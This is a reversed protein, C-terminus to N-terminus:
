AASDVVVLESCRHPERLFRRASSLEDAGVINTLYSYTGPRTLYDGLALKTFIPGLVFASLIIEVALAPIIRLGRNILFNDLSLRQASGTILFGSLAFFMVLISYGFIWAGPTGDLWVAERAVGFSHWTVVSAALVVRLLDFGPAIGSYKDLKAGITETMIGGTSGFRAGAGIGPATNVIPASRLGVRRRSWQRTPVEVFRYTLAAICLVVALGIMMMFNTILPSATIFSHEGKTTVLGFHYRGDFYAVINLFRYLVFVHVMYISYSLHGLLVCPKTSLLQSIAGEERAFTLVALVFVFPAALTFISLDVLTVFTVTAVVVLIEILTAAGRTVAIARIWPMLQAAIVGIAFGYLCRVIAGDHFVNLYRDTLFSLYIPAAVVILLSVWTRASLGLRFIVAYILYTWFEAAISWSPGNWPTGEPGLFIQLLLVSYGLATLEYGGTFPQRHNGSSGHFAILLEFALFVMLVVFHLPYVRGFRLWMFRKLSYGEALKASYSTAIVFGSLVFFFDVFIWGNQVFPLSGVGMRTPFHFFVLMCACIGRLSDLVVYRQKPMVKETATM